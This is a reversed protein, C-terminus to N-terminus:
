VGWITVRQPDGGFVAINTQVYDLAAKQDWLGYNGAFSEDDTAASFGLFNTNKSVCCKKSLLAIMKFLHFLISNFSLDLDLNLDLLFSNQKHHLHAPTRYIEKYTKILFEVNPM